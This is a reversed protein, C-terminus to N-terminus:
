HGATDLENVLLNIQEYTDTKYQLGSHQATEGMLRRFLQTSVRLARWIDDADYRSFTMRWQRLAEPEAWEDMFRGMHWTDLNNAHKARAQWEMMQVTIWQLRDQARLANWLDGRRLQRALYLATYWFSDVANSFDGSSPLSQSPRTFTPPILKVALHDKDVISRAGRRYPEPIFGSGAAQVLLSYPVFVLDVYISHEFLVLRELDNASTRSELSLWVPAMQTLWDTRQQYSEHSNAFIIIDLDSWEDAPHEVRARSGMVVAARIDDCSEAWAVFRAEIITYPNSNNDM